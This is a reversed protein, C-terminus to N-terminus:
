GFFKKLAKIIEEILTPDASASPPTSVAASRNNGGGSGPCVIGPTCDPPSCDQIAPNCQNGAVPVDGDANVFVTLAFCLLLVACTNRFIKHM